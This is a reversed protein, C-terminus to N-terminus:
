NIYLVNGNACQIRASFEDSFVKANSPWRRPLKFKPAKELADKIIDDLSNKKVDVQVRMDFDEKVRVHRLFYKVDYTKGNYNITGQPEGLKETMTAIFNKLSSSYRTVTLKKPDIKYNSGRALKEFGFVRGDCYISARIAASEYGM